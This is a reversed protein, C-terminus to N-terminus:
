SAKLILDESGTQGSLSMILERGIVRALEVPVANGIQRFVSSVSGIFEFDNPFSQIAAAERATLYRNEVPHYYTSRSTLITPAFSNLDLRQLRTQRFRGEGINSWDVDYFLDKPLYKEQDEQYRIGRGMPIFALRKAELENKILADEIRNNSADSSIGCFAEEVTRTNLKGPVPEPFSLKHGDTFGIIITRKRKQSVGYENASLVRAELEYGMDRFLNFIQDLIVKNKAALLGTVNEIVVGKPKLLEVARLFEMFLFNRPDFVNGKGITSFGQCPPGGVVLDVRRDGIMKVLSSNDLGRIDGHYALAEKHNKKFTKIADRDSDVGLICKLGARELGHSFGGCGCFLDVFTYPQTEMSGNVELNM